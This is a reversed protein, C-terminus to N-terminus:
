RPTEAPDAHQRVWAYMAIGSAVGANMSRTSGFQTIALVTACAALADPSLGPGEQGLLLVCREPIVSGELPEAGVVNDLGVLALGEGQAWVELAHVGHHHHVPLYRDTAMAGRRNWRRRGVIHVGAAGFANANRVVAGINRDHEWNEVAVHFGHARRALDDAIAEERWYRYHDVVNRRDGDRLLDPDLHDSDPWPAPHPGVGIRALAEAERAEIGDIVAPLDDLRHAVEHPQLGSSSPTPDSTLWLGRCGAALAGAVVGLDGSVHLLEGRHCAGAAAAMAFIRTDTPEIGIAAPDLRFEVGDDGGRSRDEGATSGVLGVSRGLVLSTLNVPDFEEGSESLLAVDVTVCRVPVSPM